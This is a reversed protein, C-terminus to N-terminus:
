APAGQEPTTGPAPHRFAICYEGEPLRATDDRIAGLREALRISRANRPDIYSMLLRLGRVNYCWDRVALAAEHAIGKGEAGAVVMWGIDPEPYQVPQFLGAEGLYAGTARDEVSWAGYGKLAWLGAASAFEKWAQVRTLPGDEWISRESTWFGCYPEFDGTRPARLRLHPTELVPISAASM